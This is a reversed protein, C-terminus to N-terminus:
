GAAEATKQQISIVVFEAPKVPAFGVVINVVGRDIDFRTTTEADCRVFYAERPSKGQFAGQRFLDQMFGGLMTRIQAWLPEDNPEFVVWQSGRWLSEELFLTLRRVPVYRYEDALVDAGRLTRAGWVVSGTDRFTRLCNVGRTNLDSNDADTLPITLGSVGALGSDIGAPAKWVGRAADTRAMVGAVAGCPVFEGFAGDRLPDPRRIRPFYLAGNRAMEGTLGQAQLWALLTAATRTAPPDVLLFARRELCYRLADQWVPDPLDGTPASPPLCLITFADVTALVTRLPGYDAQALAGGDSGRAASEVKYTKEVPRGVPLPKDKTPRVLRSSQLVLDVRRPGDAVTVNFFDERPGKGDDVTLHFLDGKEVGQATSVEAADPEAPHLVKVTLGDGWSGPGYAELSLGGADLRARTAGGGLRIIVATGGGNLFYDRVAYGLGSQRWLGGFIREFETLSSIKVPENVPGRLARGVFAAIATAVGTIARSGGPVEQIYVGPSGLTVPM